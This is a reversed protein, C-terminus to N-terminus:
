HVMSILFARNGPYPLCIFLMIYLGLSIPFAKLHSIIRNSKLVPHDIHWFNGSPAAFKLISLLMHKYDVFYSIANGNFVYSTHLRLDSTFPTKVSTITVTSNSFGDFSTPNVFVPILIQLGVTIGFAHM